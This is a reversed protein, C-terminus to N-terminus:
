SSEVIKRADRVAQASHRSPQSAKDVIRQALTLLKQNTDQSHQSLLRYAEDGTVGTQQILIGKAQDIVSRSRVANTVARDAIQGVDLRVSRTLDILLGWAGVVSADDGDGEILQDGVVLVQRHAGKVTQITLYTSSPGGMAIVEAWFTAAQARADPIIHHRGLELSPAVEGPKYGYIRYTEDSWILNETAFVYQYTGTPSNQFEQGSRIDDPRSRPHKDSPHNMTSSSGSRPTRRPGLKM